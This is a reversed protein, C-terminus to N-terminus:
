MYDAGLRTWVCNFPVDVGRQMQMQRRGSLEVTQSPGAREAAATRVKQSACRSRCAHITHVHIESEFSVGELTVQVKIGVFAGM